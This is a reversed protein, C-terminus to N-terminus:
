WDAALLDALDDPSTTGRVRVRTLEFPADSSHTAGQQTTVGAWYNASRFIDITRADYEGAPYSVFRPRRGLEHEITELSGLAQWVLYDDDKGALSVHNRGHSEISMGGAQMERAMDWTLYEPRQGDIFDTVVFFTATMGRERLRPFANEYNDRYGDDFTLILPKAPLPAGQALAATLDYLSITTYGEAQIRDLHTAFLDPAVSLDRRYIDADGPPVSLYHYMLIPVRVTRPTGDPTPQIDFPVAAPPPLAEAVPAEVVPSEPAPPEPMPTATEAPVPTAQPEAPAATPAIATLAAAMAASITATVPAATPVTATLLSAIALRAEETAASPFETAAPPSASPSPGAAASHPTPTPLRLPVRSPLAPVALTATQWSSAEVVPPALPSIAVAAASAPPALPLPPDLSAAPSPDPETAPETAPGATATALVEVQPEGFVLPLYAPTAPVVVGPACGGVLLLALLLVCAPRLRANSRPARGFAGPLSAFM